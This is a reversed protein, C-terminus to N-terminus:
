KDEQAIKIVLKGIGGKGTAVKQAERRVAEIDELEVVRKVTKVKGTALIEGARELDERVGINGSHFEHKINTGSLKWAYYWQAIAAFWYVFFPLPPLIGPGNKGGRLLEPTPISAISAVVGTDRKVLPFTGQVGWQTNYVFDVSQAPIADTLDKYKTYDVTQDVLGPLYEEVLPVKATSVTTILKGAGYVNKLVQIAAAGTASLGGTVFVTKDELGGAVGNERMLRLGMDITQIATVVNSINCMDAFDVNAPKRLVLDERAVCYESCFGHPALMNMPRSQAFAYVADGPKFNTVGSGVKVVIGTAEIGIKHPMELDGIIHKTAGRALQTEGTSIGAAHVKILMEKPNGIAPVPMDAVEWGTPFAYKRTILSRMTDPIATM